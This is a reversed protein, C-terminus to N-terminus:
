FLGLGGSSDSVNEVQQGALFNHVSSWIALNGLDDHISLHANTSTKSDNRSKYFCFLVFCFLVFCFLVFGKGRSKYTVENLDM